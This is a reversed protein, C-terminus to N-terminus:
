AEVLRRARQQRHLKQDHSDIYTLHIKPDWGERGGGKRSEGGGRRSDGGSEGTLMEAWGGSGGTSRGTCGDAAAWGGGSEGGEGGGGGGGGVEVGGVGGRRRCCDDLADASREVREELRAARLDDLGFPKAAFRM